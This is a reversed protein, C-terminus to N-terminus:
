AGEVPMREADRLLSAQVDQYTGTLDMGPPPCEAYGFVRAKAAIGAEGDAPTAAMEHLIDSHRGDAARYRGTFPGEEPDCGYRRDHVASIRNMERELRFWEAALARLRADNAGLAPKAQVATAGAAVTAVAAAGGTLLQRRQM